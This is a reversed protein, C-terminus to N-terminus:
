IGFLKGWFSNGSNRNNGVNKNYGGNMGNNKLKRCDPCRTPTSFGKKYYFDRDKNTFNFLRGCQKCVITQYVGNDYEKKCDQCM